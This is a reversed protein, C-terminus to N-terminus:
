SQGLPPPRAIRACNSLTVRRSSTVAEGPLALPTRNVNRIRPRVQRSTTVDLDDQAIQASRLMTDYRALLQELVSEGHRGHVPQHAGPAEHDHL